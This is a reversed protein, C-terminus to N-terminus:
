CGGCLFSVLALGVVVGEVFYRADSPAEVVDLEQIEFMNMTSEVKM